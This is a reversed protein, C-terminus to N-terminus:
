IWNNANMVVESVSLVNHKGDTTKQLTGFVEVYIGELLDLKQDTTKLLIIETNKTDYLAYRIGDVEYQKPDIYTVRGKFSNKSAQTSTKPLLDSRIESKKLTIERIYGILLGVLLFAIFVNLLVFFLKKPSM